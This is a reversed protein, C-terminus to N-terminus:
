CGAESYYNNLAKPLEKADPYIILYGGTRSHSLYNTKKSVLEVLELTNKESLRFIRGPSNEKDYLDELKFTKSQSLNELWFLYILHAFIHLNFEQVPLSKQLFKNNDKKLWGYKTFPSPNETEPTKNGIYHVEQYMKILCLLDKNLTSEKVKSNTKIQVYSYLSHRLAETDFKQAVFHNFFWHWTTALAQNTVLFYHILLITGDLECYPDHQLIHKANKTLQFKHGKTEILRTAQLWYKLSALMNRGLGLQEISSDEDNLNLSSEKILKLAKFIWPDRLHFSQHGGFKTTQM